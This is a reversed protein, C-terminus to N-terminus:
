MRIIGPVSDFTFIMELFWRVMLLPEFIHLISYMDKGLNWTNNELIAFIKLFRPIKYEFIYTCIFVQDFIPRLHARNFASNSKQFFRM